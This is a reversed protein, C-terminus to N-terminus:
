FRGFICGSEKKIGVRWPHTPLAKPLSPGRFGTKKKKIGENVTMCKNGVEQKNKKESSKM